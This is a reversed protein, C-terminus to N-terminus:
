SRHYGDWDDGCDDGNDDVEFLQLEPELNALSSGINPARILKANKVDSKGRVQTVVQHSNASRLEARPCCIAM